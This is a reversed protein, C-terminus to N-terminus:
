ATASSCRRGSSASRLGARGLGQASLRSRVLLALLALLGGEGDNDTRMFTLVYMVTVIVTIAWFM